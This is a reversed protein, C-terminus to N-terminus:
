RSWTAAPGAPTVPRGSWALPSRSAVVLRAGGAAATPVSASTRSSNAPRPDIRLLQSQGTAALWISGAGAALRANVGNTPISVRETTSGDRLNLGVISRPTAVWLSDGDVLLAQPPGGVDVMGADYLEVPQAPIGLSRDGGAPRTPKSTGSHHGVTAFAVVVAM